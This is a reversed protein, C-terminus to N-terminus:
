VIGDKFCAISFFHSWSLEVVNLSGKTSLFTILIKKKAFMEGHLYQVCNRVDYAKAIVFGQTSARQIDGLKSAHVFNLIFNPNSFITCIKLTTLVNSRIKTKPKDLPIPSLEQQKKSDL